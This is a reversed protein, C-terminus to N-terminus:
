RVEDVKPTKHAFIRNKGFVGSFPGKKPMKEVKVQFLELVSLSILIEFVTGSVEPCPSEFSDDFEM